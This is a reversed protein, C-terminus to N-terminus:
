MMPVGTTGTMVAGLLRRRGRIPKPKMGSPEMVSRAINLYGDLEAFPNKGEGLPASVVVVPIGDQNFLSQFVQEHRDDLDKKRKRAKPSEFDVGMTDRAAKHIPIWKNLLTYELSSTVVDSAFVVSLWPVAISHLRGFFNPSGSPPPCRTIKYAAHVTNDTILYRRYRFGKPQYIRFRPWFRPMKRRVNQEGSEVRKLYERTAQELETDYINVDTVNWSRNLFAQLEEADLVRAGSVNLRGLERIMADAIRSVPLQNVESSAMSRGSIANALDGNRRITIVFAMSVKGSAMFTAEFSEHLITHASMEDRDEDTWETEPIGEAMVRPLVIDPHFNEGIMQMVEPVNVPRRRFLYSAGVSYGDQEGVLRKVAEALGTVFNHQEDFDGSAVEGGEVEVAISDSGSEYQHLLGIEGLSLVGVPITRNPSLLPRRSKARAKSSKKHKKAPTMSKSRWLYGGRRGINWDFLTEGFVYYMRGYELRWVLVFSLSIFVFFFLWGHLLGMTLSVMFLGMGVYVDPFAMKLLSVATKEPVMIRQREEQVPETM